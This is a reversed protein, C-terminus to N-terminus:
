SSAGVANANNNKLIGVSLTGFVSAFVGGSAILCFLLNKKKM